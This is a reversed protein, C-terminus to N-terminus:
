DDYFSGELKRNLVNIRRRQLWTGRPWEQAPAELLDWPAMLATVVDFDGDAENWEIRHHM